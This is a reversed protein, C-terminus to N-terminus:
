RVGAKSQPTESRARIADLDVAEGSPARRDKKPCHQSGCQNPSIALWCAPCELEDRPFGMSHDACAEEGYEEVSAAVCSLYDLEAGEPTGAKADMLAEIRRYIYRGVEREAAGVANEEGSPARALAIFRAAKAAWLPRHREDVANWDAGDNEYMALYFARGADLDVAESANPESM